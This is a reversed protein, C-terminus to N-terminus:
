DVGREIIRYLRNIDINRRINDALIDFQKEKYARRDVKEGSYELGKKEYLRKVIRGSVEASDFIGHVYCGYVNGNYAGGCNTLNKGYNETVGMHIEYGTFEAGSLCEFFGQIDLFKGSTQITKKENSFITECDILSM